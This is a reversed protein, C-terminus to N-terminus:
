ELPIGILSAALQPQASFYTRASTPPMDALLHLLTVVGARLLALALPLTGKRARSRDEGFVTDLVWYGKNEIRWHQRWLQLLSDPGGDEPTVSTIGYHVSREVTGQKLAVSRRGVRISQGVGRWDFEEELYENLAATAEIRYSDVRGHGVVTTQYTATEGATVRANGEFWDVLAEQLAPQNGKV